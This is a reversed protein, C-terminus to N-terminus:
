GLRPDIVQGMFLVAGTVDERIVFLFPHDAVFDVKDVHRFSMLMMVAASAAAAETGEENVEVFSKHHVSSVFLSQGVTSEVMETLGEEGGFPLVLGLEKFMDSAEFGFSIKFKPILFQGIEVKQRPINRDFFDSGSNIKEVLSSLGDKAVPLYFYMTFQRKDEGRSYPLGLVKYGDYERVFQKKKTTMFPVQVKSGVLLHFDSDKTKSQDFKESWAGKFYVANAFVLRTSRTVAGSPLIDKILGNTQKDAWLNIENAVEVALPHPLYIRLVPNSPFSTITGSTRGRNPLSNRRRRNPNPPKPPRANIAPPPLHM